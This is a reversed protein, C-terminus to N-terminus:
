EARLATGPQIRAAAWGPGAAILNAILLAGAAIALLPVPPAVPGAVVGLQEAVLRWAWRGGAVGLPMGILTAVLAFTTAQWAVTQTIQGRAFGLTKLIALDRRRRRVATILAHAVTGLALLAVLGALLGPLYGVREVHTLDPQKLPFVVTNPFDRQLQQLARHRDSTPDLRVFFSQPAASPSSPDLRRWLEVHSIAGKGPAVAANVDGGNIIVRGVVRLRQRPGVPSTIEVTDGIRKGLMRMTTSGLAIENPQTPARGEVVAPLLEGKGPAFSLLQVSRGDILPDPSGTVVGAFAAVTSNAALKRAAQEAAQPDAFNGVGVDWTVGYARPDGLLRLLSASFTVAVTLACVAAAAAAIASRIPVATRGRGPEVALRTGTVAVPPLGAAALATAVRSPREAGAVETVGLPGASAGSARWGTVVACGLVAIAVAVAGVALVPLDVAVGPDLEARRAVGLPTAPSLAVAGATALAAGALAIPAARLVAVGILQGRTMGLARLIPTEVAELLIQRGLTQGVLLLAALAALLAFAALAASELGIARRTGATLTEDTTLGESPEVAARDGFLRNLSVSLQPLDAAGRNLAVGLVIGYRAIDPGYRQWYAPTLYLEGTYVYLNEQDTVVPVLDRPYRVIGVVRLDVVAGQPAVARGEGAPGFQELTFAGVRYRSGVRLHRRQALEEDVVAEDPRREDALRGAVVIPRGFAVSAGPDLSLAGLLRHWRTPDTPDASALILAGTLRVVQRVEPLEAVQRRANALDDFPDDTVVYVGTDMTRNAALFRPLAAESRRAGAAAALVLAGALGVLLALLLSARARGRLQARARLWLVGM